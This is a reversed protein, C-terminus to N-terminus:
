KKYTLEYKIDNSKFLIKLDVNEINYVDIPSLDVNENFPKVISYNEPILNEISRNSAIQIEVSDYVTINVLKYDFDISRFENKIKKEISELSKYQEIYPFADRTTKITTVGNFGAIGMENMRDFNEVVFDNKHLLEIGKKFSSVTLFKIRNIELPIFKKSYKELDENKLTYYSNSFLIEKQIDYMGLFYSKDRGELMITYSFGSNESPRSTNETLLGKISNLTNIDSIYFHGYRKQFENDDIRLDEYKFVLKDGNKFDVNDFYSNESCSVITTLIIAILILRNM